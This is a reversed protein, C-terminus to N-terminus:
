RKHELLLGNKVDNLLNDVLVAETGKKSRKGLEVDRCGCRLFMEMDATVEM